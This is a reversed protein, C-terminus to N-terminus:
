QPLYLVLLQSSTFVALHYLALHRKIGKRREGIAQIRSSVDVDRHCLCGEDDVTSSTPRSTHVALLFTEWFHLHVRCCSGTIMLQHMRLQDEAFPVVKNRSEPVAVATFEDNLATKYKNKEILSWKEPFRKFIQFQPCSSPRM